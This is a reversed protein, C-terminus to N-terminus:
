VAMLGGGVGYGLRELGALTEFDETDNYEDNAFVMAVVGGGIALAGVITSAVGLNTRWSSASDAQVM